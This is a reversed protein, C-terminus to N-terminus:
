DEYYLFGKQDAYGLFEGKSNQMSLVKYYTSHTNFVEVKTVRDQHTPLIHHTVKNSSVVLLGYKDDRKLSYMKHYSSPYKPKINSIADAQFDYIVKHRITIIGYLGNKKAIFGEDYSYCYSNKAPTYDLPALFIFEDYDFPVRITTKFRYGDILGWKGNLKCAYLNVIDPCNPVLQLKIDEYETPIEIEGKHNVVGWKGNQKIKAWNTPHTYEEDSYREYYAESLEVEEFDIPLISLPKVGQKLHYKGDSDRSRIDQFFALKQQQGETVIGLRKYSSKSVIKPVVEEEEFDVVEDLEEKSITNEEKPKVIKEELTLMLSNEDFRYLQDENGKIAKSICPLAM